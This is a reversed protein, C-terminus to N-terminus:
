EEEFEEGCEPCVDDDAVLLAGCSPCEFEEEEGIDEEEEEGEEEKGAEDEARKFKKYDEEEKMRKRLIALVIILIIIVIIVIIISYFVFENDITDEDEKPEVTITLTDNDSAGQDDVVILTVIYEGPKTYKWTPEIGIADQDNDFIGDGDSDVSADMDWYYEDITGDEDSSDSGDLRFAEDEDVILDDGADAVPTGLIVVPGSKDITDGIAKYTGDHAAFYYTNTTGIGIAAGDIQFQYERGNTYDTDNTDTEVMKYPIGNINVWINGGEAPLPGDNDLDTYTVRYSFTDYDSGEQPFVGDGEIELEPPSNDYTGPSYLTTQSTVLEDGQAWVRLDDNSLNIFGSNAIKVWNKIATDWTYMRLRSLNLGDPINANDLSITINSNGIKYRPTLSEFQFKNFLGVSGTNQTSPNTTQTIEVTGKGGYYISCDAPITSNSFYETKPQFATINTTANSIGFMPDTVRLIILHDGEPLTANFIPSNGDYIYTKVIKPLQGALQVVRESTWNYRLEIDELDSSESGDFTIDEDTFYVSQNTPTTIKAVPPVNPSGLRYLMGSETGIYLGNNSITPSAFIKDDAKFSWILDTTDDGNGFEELCYVYQDVSGFFVREDAIVPSSRVMGGTSYIWLRDGSDAEYAYVNGDDSGVIVINNDTDVAPSSSISSGTTKEWVVDGNGSDLAYFQSDGAGIYILGDGIAPSGKLAAATGFNREWVTAGTFRDLAYFRGEDTGIYLTDEALLAAPSSGSISGISKSWLLDENNAPATDNVGQGGDTQGDEDLAYLTGDTSGIYVIGNIVMPSARVDNGTAYSWLLSGDNMDFAYVSGDDAGLFIKDYESSGIGSAIIAPSTYIPAGVSYNWMDSGDQESIAYIKGDTSTLFVRGKAIAVSSKVPGSSKYTWETKNTRPALWSLGTHATDNQFMSWGDSYLPPVDDDLQWFALNNDTNSDAYSSRNIQAAMDHEGVVAIWESTLTVSEGVELIFDHEEILIKKPILSNEDYDIFKLSGNLEITGNNYVTAKLQVRETEFPHLDYVKLEHNYIELDTSALAWVSGSDSAIFVIGNAVAASSEIFGNTWLPYIGWIERKNISLPQPTANLSYFYKDYSGIFVKGDAIAPSARIKDDTDYSWYMETSNIEGDDDPDIMPAAYLKSDESGVYLVNNDLDLAPSSYVSGGTTFNWVEAGTTKNLAYVKRDLGGFFVENDGVAISSSVGKGTSTTFNWIENGNTIDLAYVCPKGAGAASETGFFVVDEVIAPTSRIKYGTNFEWIAKGTSAQLAYLRGDFSGVLVLNDAVAPAGQIEGGTTYNWLFTGTEADLAFLNKDSCGIFLIGNAVAASSVIEDGSLPGGLNTTSRSWVISGNYIDLAYISRDTSGIYVKDNAVVPSSYLEYGSDFTHKWLTHKANLALSPSYGTNSLDGRNKPWDEVRQTSRSSMDFNANVSTSIDNDTDPNVGLVPYLNVILFLGIIIICFLTKHKIPRIKITVKM